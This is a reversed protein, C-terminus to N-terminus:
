AKNQLQALNNATLRPAAEVPKDEEFKQALKQKISSSTTAAALTAFGVVAFVKTVTSFRM